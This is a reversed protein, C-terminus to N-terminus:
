AASEADERNVGLQGLHGASPVLRLCAAHAICQTGIDSNVQCNYCQAKHKKQLQTALWSLM